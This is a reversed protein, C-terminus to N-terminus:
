VSHPRDGQIGLDRGLSRTQLNKVCDVLVSRALQGFEVALVDQLSSMNFIALLVLNGPQGHLTNASRASFVRSLRLCLCPLTSGLPLGRSLSEDPGFSHM